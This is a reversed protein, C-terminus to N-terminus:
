GRKEGFGLNDDPMGRDTVQPVRENHWGVCRRQIPFLRTKVQSNTRGSRAPIVSAYPVRAIRYRLQTQRPSADLCFM